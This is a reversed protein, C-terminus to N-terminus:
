YGLEFWDQYGTLGAQYGVKYTVAHMGHLSYICVVAGDLHDISQSTKNLCPELSRPWARDCVLRQILVWLELCKGLCVCVHGAVHVSAQNAKGHFDQAAVFNNNTRNLSCRCVSCGVDLLPQQPLWETVASVHLRSCLTMMTGQMPKSPQILATRCKLSCEHWNTLM